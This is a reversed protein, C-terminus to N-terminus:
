VVRNSWVLLLLQVLILRSLFSPCACVFTNSYLKNVKLMRIIVMMNLISFHLCPGLFQTVLYAVTGYWLWYTPDNRLAPVSRICSSPITCLEIRYEWFRVLNYAVALIYVAVLCYKSRDVTCYIGVKLPHCVAMYREFTIVMCIWISSTQLILAFPYMYTLMYDSFNTIDTNSKDITLPPLAFIPVVVLLLFFDTVSLGTLLINISSNRMNKRSFVYVSLLNGLLGIFCLVVMIIACYFSSKQYIDSKSTDGAAENELEMKERESLDFKESFNLSSATSGWSFAM